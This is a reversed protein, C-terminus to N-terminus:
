VRLEYDQLVVSRSTPSSTGQVTHMDKYTMSTSNYELVSYKVRYEVPVPPKRNLFGPARGLILGVSSRNVALIVDRSSSKKTISALTGCHSKSARMQLMEMRILLNVEQM